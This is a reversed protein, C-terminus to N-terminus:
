LRSHARFILVAPRQFFFTDSETPKCRDKAVCGYLRTILVSYQTLNIHRLLQNGAIECFISFVDFSFKTQVYKNRKGDNHTAKDSLLTGFVTNQTFRFPPACADTLPACGGQSGQLSPVPRLNVSM